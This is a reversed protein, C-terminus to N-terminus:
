SLNHIGTPDSYFSTMCMIESEHGVHYALEGSTSWLRLEGDFGGSAIHPTTVAATAPLALLCSVAGTHGPGPQNQGDKACTLVRECQSTAPNWIRITQDTSGTWLM